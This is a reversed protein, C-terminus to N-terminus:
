IGPQIEAPNRNADTDAKTKLLRFENKAFDIMDFTGIVELIAWASSPAGMYWQQPVGLYWLAVGVFFMVTSIVFSAACWIGISVIIIFQSPTFTDALWKILKVRLKKMTESLSPNIQARCYGYYDM